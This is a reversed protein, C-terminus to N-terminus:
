MKPAPARGDHAPRQPEEGEAALIMGLPREDDELTGAADLLSLHHLIRGKLHPLTPRDDILDITGKTNIEARMAQYDADGSIDEGKLVSVTFFSELFRAAIKDTIVIGPPAKANLTLAACPEGGEELPPQVYTFDMRRFGRGQWWQLRDCQDILANNNDQMYEGPTMKVPANQECFFAVVPVREGARVPAPGSERIFERSAQEAANILYSGIGMKRYREDVFLYNLQSMGDLGDLDEGDKRAMVFFNIAGILEGTDPDRVFLAKESYPGQQKQLEADHNLAFARAFGEPEEREEPLTFIKEYLGYFDAFDQTDGSSIAGAQLKGLYNEMSGHAALKEDRLASAKRDVRAVENQYRSLVSMIHERNM